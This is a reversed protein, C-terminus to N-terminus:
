SEVSFSQVIVTSGFCPGIALPASIARYDGTQELRLEGDVLLRMSDPAVEWRLEHWDNTSICGKGEIGRQEGTQPDHVRLESIDCEWNLIIEGAHWYLRLNTSDTKAITTLTFPARFPQPTLAVANLYEQPPGTLRLGEPTSEISCGFFPVMSQLSEQKM